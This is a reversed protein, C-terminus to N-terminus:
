NQMKFGLLKNQLVWMGIEFRHDLFAKRLMCGMWYPRNEERCKRRAEDAMPSNWVTAFDDRAINGMIYNHLVSPYVNGRPDLYFYDVGPRSYFLPQGDTVLRYMGYIGFARGWRKWHSSGLEGTIIRTFDDRLKDNEVPRTSDTVITTGHEGFFFESDHSVSMTFQVGLEKALDYVKIMHDANQTTLTYAIRINKVGGNKLDRVVSITKEFGGPIGRIEDHKDGVGDISFGFGIKPFIERLELARGVLAKGLFGNSSVVIRARPLREHVVRVIEALDKRLYPEGGSLNVDMLTDPLKRYVEPPVDFHEKIQWISCMNCRAQCKYTVAIVADIPYAM